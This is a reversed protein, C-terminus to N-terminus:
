GVPGASRAPAAGCRRGIARTAALPRLSWGDPDLLEANEKCGQGHGTRVVIEHLLSVSIFVNALTATAM